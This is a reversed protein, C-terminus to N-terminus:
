IKISNLLINMHEQQMDGADKIDKFPFMIIKLNPIFNLNSSLLLSQFIENRDLMIFVKNYKSAIKSLLVRQANSISKTYLCTVRYGYFPFLYDLKMADFPGEVVFLVNGRRNIFDYDFLTDKINNVSEEVPHTLYRLLANKYISRSTWTILQFNRYVPIIVRFKYKGMLCCKLGYDEIIINPEDFGRDVLYDWFRKTDGKNLINQFEPLFELSTIKNNVSNDKKMFRNKISAFENEILLKKDDCLLRIQQESCKLLKKFLNYYGKGKHKSNKWCSWFSTRPNIGLHFDEDDECFPCNIGIWGKGVNEGHERIEINYQSFIKKINVM